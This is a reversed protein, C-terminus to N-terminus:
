TVVTKSVVSVAFVAHLETKVEEAGEQQNKKNV